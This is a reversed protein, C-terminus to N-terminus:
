IYSQSAMHILHNYQVLESSRYPHAKMYIESFVRFAQEWRNYNSIATSKHLNAPLWYTKGEHVVMEYRQNNAVLIRDKPVLRGFDIYEGRIIREQMHEDIHSGVLHYSEDHSRVAETLTETQTQTIHRIVFRCETFYSSNLITM